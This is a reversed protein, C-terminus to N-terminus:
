ATVKSADGLPKGMRARAIVPSLLGADIGFKEEILLAKEPTPSNRGNALHSVMSQTIGIEKAFRRQTVDKNQNLFELIPNIENM